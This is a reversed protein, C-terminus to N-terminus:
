YTEMIEPTGMIIYVGTSYKVVAFNFDVPEGNSYIRKYQGTCTTSTYGNQLSDTRIGNNGISNLTKIVKDYTEEVSGNLVKVKVYQFYKIHHSFEELISHMQQNLENIAYINSQKVIDIKVINYNDYRTSEIYGSVSKGKFNLSYNEKNSSFDKTLKKDKNLKYFLENVIKEKPDSTNFQATVGYQVTKSHTNKIISNFVDVKDDSPLEQSQFLTKNFHTKTQNNVKYASINSSLFIIFEIYVMINFLIKKKMIWGGTRNLLISM